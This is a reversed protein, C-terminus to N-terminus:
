ESVGSCTSCGLLLTRMPVCHAYDHASPKSDLEVQVADGLTSDSEFRWVLWQTGKTFGGDSADAVFEGQM